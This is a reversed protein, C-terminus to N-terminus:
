ATREQAQLQPQQPLRQAIARAIYRATIPTGEYHLIPILRAPDLDFENVLLVDPRVTQIVEAVRRIQADSGSALASQLQTETNRNMSANFTAFRATDLAPLAFAPAALVSAVASVLATRAFRVRSGTATDASLNM